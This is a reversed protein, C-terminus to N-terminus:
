QCFASLVVFSISSFTLFYRNLRNSLLARRPEPAANRRLKLPQSRLA